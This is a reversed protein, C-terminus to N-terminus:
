FLIITANINLTDILECLNEMALEIDDRSQRSERPSSTSERPSSTPERPPPTSTRPSPTPERPPPTPARKSLKARREDESIDYGEEGLVINIPKRCYLCNFHPNKEVNLWKKLCHNHSFQLCCDHYSWESVGLVIGHQCFGCLGKSDAM